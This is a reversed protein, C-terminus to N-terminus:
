GLLGKLNKVSKKYFFPMLAFLLPPFYISFALLIGEPLNMGNPYTSYKALIITWLFFLGILFFLLILDIERPYYVVLSLLIPLSLLFLNKSALKLKKILFERPTDSHVWVYYENEPKTYYSLSVLFVILIAFIGLNMNDVSVAIFTLTYAIPFVYFSKRFGSTFESPHKYFPTPITFNFHTKVSVTALLIALAFLSASELIANHYLLLITFPFFVTLNEIIRISKTTSDGFSTLLFDTRNKESLMLLFSLSILLVLYKAFETKQFIYESILVFGAVGIVYGIVPNIGAEKLKRNTM